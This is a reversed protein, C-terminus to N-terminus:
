KTQGINIIDGYEMKNKESSLAKAAITLNKQRDNGWDIAQLGVVEEIGGTEWIKDMVTLRNILDTEIRNEGVYEDLDVGDLISSIGEYIVQHSRKKFCEKDLLNSVSDYYRLDLLLVGLTYEELEQRSLM